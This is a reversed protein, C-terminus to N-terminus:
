KKEWDRRHWMVATLIIVVLMSGLLLIINTNGPVMEKEPVPTASVTVIVPIITATQATQGWPVSPPMLASGALAVALGISIFLIPRLSRPMFADELQIKLMALIVHQCATTKRKTLKNNSYLQWSPRTVEEVFALSIMFRKIIM